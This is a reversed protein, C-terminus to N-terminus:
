PGQTARPSQAGGPETAQGLAQRLMRRVRLLERAMSRKEVLDAVYPVADETLIQELRADQPDMPQGVVGRPADTQGDRRRAEVLKRVEIRSSDPDREQLRRVSAGAGAGWISGPVSGIGEAELTHVIATIITSAPVPGRSSEATWNLEAERIAECLKRAMREEGRRHGANIRDIVYRQATAPLAMFSDYSFGILSAVQQLYEGRRDKEAREAALAKRLDDVRDLKALRDRVMGPLAEFAASARPDPELIRYIETLINLRDGARESLIDLGQLKARVLEPVKAVLVDEVLGGDDQRYADQGFMQGIQELLGRYYNRSSELVRATEQWAELQRDEQVPYGSPGLPVRPAPFRVPRNYEAAPRADPAKVQDRHEDQWQVVRGILASVMARQRDLGPLDPHTAHIFAISRRREEILAQYRRLLDPLFADRARFLVADQETVLEGTARNVACIAYKTDITAPPEIMLPTQITAQNSM